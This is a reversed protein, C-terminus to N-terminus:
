GASEQSNKVTQVKEEEFLYKVLSDAFLFANFALDKDVFKKAFVWTIPNDEAPIDMKTVKLTNIDVMKVDQAIVDKTIRKINYHLYPNRIDKRFNDLKDEWLDDILNLERAETTVPGLEMNEVRDWEQKDYEHRKNHKVISHKLSFEVLIASLSIAAGYLSFILCERIEDYLSLLTPNAIKPPLPFREIIELSDAKRKEFLENIVEETNQLQKTEFVVGQKVMKEITEPSSIIHTARSSLEKLLLNIDKM